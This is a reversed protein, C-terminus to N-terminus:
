MGYCLPLALSGLAATHTKGQQTRALTHAVADTGYGPEATGCTCSSPAPGSNPASTHAAVCPGPAGVALLLWRVPVRRLGHGHPRDMTWDDM